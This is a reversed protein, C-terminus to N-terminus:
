LTFDPTMLIGLDTGTGTGGDATDTMWSEIMRQRGNDYIQYSIGWPDIRWADIYPGAWNATTSTMDALDIGTSGIPPWQGTDQHYMIAATKISDLESNVKAEQATYRTTRFMPVMAGALVAVIAIVILLEILTFGKRQM